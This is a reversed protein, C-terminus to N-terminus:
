YLGSENPMTPFDAGRASSVEMSLLQSRRHHGWSDELSSPNHNSPLPSPTPSPISFGGMNFLM